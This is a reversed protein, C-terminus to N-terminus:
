PKSGHEIVKTVISFSHFTFGQQANPAVWTPIGEFGGSEYGEFKYHNGKELDLRGRIALTVANTISRGDIESIKLTPNMGVAGIGSIVTRTGLPKGLVGIINHPRLESVRTDAGSTQFVSFCIILQLICILNRM